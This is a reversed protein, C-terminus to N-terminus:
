VKLSKARSLLLCRSCAPSVPQAGDRQPGETNPEILIRAWWWTISYRSAIRQIHAWPWCPRRWCPEAAAESAWLMPQIPRRSENGQM